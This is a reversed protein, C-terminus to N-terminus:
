GDTSVEVFVQGGGARIIRAFADFTAGAFAAEGKPNPGYKSPRLWAVHGANIQEVSWPSNAHGESPTEFPGYWAVRTIKAGDSAYPVGANHEYPADSWDDGWQDALPATTFFAWAGEVYCLVGLVSERPPSM